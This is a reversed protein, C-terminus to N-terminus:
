VHACGQRRNEAGDPNLLTVEYFESGSRTELRVTQQHGLQALVGRCRPDGPRLPVPNAGRDLWLPYVRVGSVSGSDGFILELVASEPTFHESRLAHFLNGISYCIPKGQYFEIPQLVHPHHGIVADAGADIAARAMLRQYDVVDRSVLSVGWHWSVIVVEALKRAATVDTVMRAVDREKAVTRIIPPMGPVEFHRDRPEYATSVAVTALGGRGEGAEFMGRAYVSTYSLMAYRLGAANGLVPQHAGTLDAGGGAHAIGADDLVGLMQRLGQYGYNMAHNNAVGVASFGAATLAAVQRPESRLHGNPKPLPEGTDCLPIELNGILVDAARTIEFIPAFAAEPHEEQVYIDGVFRVSAGVARDAMITM